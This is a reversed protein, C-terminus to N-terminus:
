HKPRIIRHGNARKALKLDTTNVIGDGNVDGRLKVGHTGMSKKIIAIDAKNVVGDGNVDGLLREFYFPTSDGDVTLKYYGDGATSNPNGGLGQAGFDLEIAQDVVHLKGTVAVAGLAKGSTSYKFLHVHGGAIVSQLDEHPGFNVDVTGIFSRDAQGSNVVVRTPMAPSSPAPVFTSVVPSPLSQNGAADRGVSFFSYSTNQSGRFVASSSGPLITTWFGYAGGNTSVYVDTGSLGSSPADQSSADSDFTTVTFTAGTQQVALPL